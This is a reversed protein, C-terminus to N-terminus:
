YKDNETDDLSIWPEPQSVPARPAVSAAKEIPETKGSYSSSNQNKLKFTSMMHKLVEAQGSLEQSSAASEEATASNTQVVNSVQEIGKTIQAIESAQDNSARAINGVLGTVKEIESLIELLSEATEDAIKTGVAVKDISGEILGTTEKAAEASRAALTRVEEAVVAFGKGHQGARAAEVAANLALINTQFAIDDIVKIIKSINNSSDNIEVMATVMKSMQSNGVEANTRVEIARENAENANKANRKTEAAVEEISATLEQIASAQETTGQSLAQGGDSIQIAGAEVQGAADDIEKMVESLHTTIGNIALKIAVFDGHYYTKIEQSLDGEGIQQLTTTIETVYNKLFDITRNMDDKIKGHQGKFDGDMTFNLNGKSLENLAASTAQIPEIVADLTQNFGSIVKAYEGRFRSPDGRHDLDGEVALKTMEDAESVLSHINEIMQILSPIFEDEDSRKGINVLEDYDNMNGNSVNNVIAHIYNLKWHIENVSTALDGFVGLYNGEMKASFDNVYLRHLVEGTETLAGLGDICANINNKLDNFDGKYETTIKPPILGNGIREIAKNAVKLPKVFTNIVNNLSIIMDKYAGTYENTNGRYNLQGESAATGFKVIADHVRNMEALVAVMSYSIVDDESRPVIEVEFDGQSMRQAAEAMGKNNQIMTEFSLMLDGIEDYTTVEIEVDVKGVAVQDAVEKLRIIPKALKQAMVYAAIGGILLIMLSILLILNRLNTIPALVDDEYQAVILTWNTGPIPAASGIKTEGNVTYTLMGTTQTGLEKLALGFSKWTGDKEIDDFVNVQDLIMQDDPHAMMAGNENVVFGYQREGDGMANTTDKLFTPDRRGVLLGVVQGDSKIPAVDFVVPEKTVKSIAVDSISLEGKFGDEYWFEGWSDFEGGGKIYKAHGALDMVAIDQYGLREVDGAVADVQTQWDMTTVRARSAVESLTSLNGTIIAGVHSAGEITYKQADTNAQNTLASSGLNVAIIGLALVALAILSVTFVLLKTSIRSKRHAQAPIFGAPHVASEPVADTVHSAVPAQKPEQNENM